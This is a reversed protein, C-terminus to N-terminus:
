YSSSGYMQLLVYSFTNHCQISAKQMHHQDQHDMFKYSFNNHCPISAKQMHHHHQPDMCKCCCFTTLIICLVLAKKKKKKKNPPQTKPPWPKLWTSDGSSAFCSHLQQQLRLNSPYSHKNSPIVSIIPHHDWQRCCFTPVTICLISAKQTNPACGVVRKKEKKEQQM